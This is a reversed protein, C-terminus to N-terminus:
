EWRESTVEKIVDQFSKKHFLLYGSAAPKKFSLDAIAEVLFNQPIVHGLDFDGIKGTYFPEDIRIFKPLEIKKCLNEFYQIIEDKNLKIGKRYQRWKRFLLQRDNTRGAALFENITNISKILSKPLETAFYRETSVKVHINVENIELSKYIIELTSIDRIMIDLWYKDYSPTNNKNVAPQIRIINKLVDPNMYGKLQIQFYRCSPLQNTKIVYSRDKESIKILHNLNSFGEGFFNIIKYNPLNPLKIKGIKRRIGGQEIDLKYYLIAQQQKYNIQFHTIEPRFPKFVKIVNPLWDIIKGVTELIISFNDL